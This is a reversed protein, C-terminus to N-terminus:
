ASTNPLDSFGRQRAVEFLLVTTAMAVNLSDAVGAMPIRVKYDAQEM